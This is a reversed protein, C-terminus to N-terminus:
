SRYPIRPCAWEERYTSTITSHLPRAALIGSLILVGQPKLHQQLIAALEMIAGALINAVVLDFQADDSLADPTCRNLADAVGNLLANERSAVM